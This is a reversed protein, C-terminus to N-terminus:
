KSEELKPPQDKNKRKLAYKLRDQKRCERCTLTNIRKYFYLNSLVMRHGNKCYEEQWRRWKKDMKSHCSCCLRIWDSVDKLYRGSVNAWGYKRKETTGCTNCHAPKGLQKEVWYHLWRYEASTM